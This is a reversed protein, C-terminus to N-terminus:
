DFTSKKLKKKDQHFYRKLYFNMKEFLFQIQM